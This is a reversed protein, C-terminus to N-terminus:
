PFRLVLVVMILIRELEELLCYNKVDVLVSIKLLCLLALM